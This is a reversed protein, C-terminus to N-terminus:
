KKRGVFRTVFGAGNHYLGEKLNVTTELLEQIDFGEFDTQLEEPSILLDPQGPGGVGPNKKRYELHNKGFAELIIWGGKKLYQSMLRHYASRINKPFHAYILAIADFQDPQFGLDPLLGVQYNIEIGYKASLKLAKSRGEQSIDFATVQWGQRGAHVANRGEGEAGLLMKGPSLRELQDRFFANPLEGYAYAAERYRTDWMNLWQDDM